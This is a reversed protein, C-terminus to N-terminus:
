HVEHSRELHPVEVCALELIKEERIPLHENGHEASSWIRLVLAPLPLRIQLVALFELPVLVRSQREGNLKQAILRPPM